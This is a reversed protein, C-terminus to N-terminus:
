LSYSVVVGDYMEIVEVDFTMPTMTTMRRNLAGSNAGMSM